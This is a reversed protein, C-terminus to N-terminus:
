EQSWCEACEMIAYVNVAASFGCFTRHALRRDSTRELTGPTLIWASSLSKKEFFKGTARTYDSISEVHFFRQGIALDGFRKM